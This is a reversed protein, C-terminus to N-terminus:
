DSRNKGTKLQFFFLTVDRRSMDLNLLVSSRCPSAQAVICDRDSGSSANAGCSAGKGPARFASSLNLGRAEPDGRLSRFGLLRTCVNNSTLILCFSPVRTAISLKSAWDGRRGVAGVLGGPTLRRVIPVRYSQGHAAECSDNRPSRVNWLVGLM